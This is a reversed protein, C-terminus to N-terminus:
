AAIESPAPTRDLAKPKGFLDIHEDVWAKLAM